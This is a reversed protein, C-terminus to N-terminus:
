VADPRKGWSPDLEKGDVQLAVRLAGEWDAFYSPEDYTYTKVRVIQKSDRLYTVGYWTAFKGRLKPIGYFEDCEDCDAGFYVDYVKEVEERGPMGAIRHNFGIAQVFASPPLAPLDDAAPVFIYMKEYVENVDIHYKREAARAGMKYLYPPISGYVATVIHTNLASNWTPNGVSVFANWNQQGYQTNIKIMLEEAQPSAM